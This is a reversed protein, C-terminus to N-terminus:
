AHYSHLTFMSGDTGAIVRRLSAALAGCQHITDVLRSGRRVADDHRGRHPYATLTFRVQTQGLISPVDGATDVPEALLANVTEIPADEAFFQASEPNALVKERAAGYAAFDNSVLHITVGPFLPGTVVNYAAFHTVGAELALRKLTSMATVADQMRGPKVKGIFTRIIPM